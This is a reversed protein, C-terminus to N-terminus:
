EDPPTHLKNWLQKVTESANFDSVYKDLKKHFSVRAAPTMRLIQFLLWNHIEVFHYTLDRHALKGLYGSGEIAAASEPHADQERCLVMIESTKVGEKLDFAKIAEYSDRVREEGFAKVTVEYAHVINGDAQREVIDGLTKGRAGSISARGGHGVVEVGTRLEEHYARLSLEVIHEPTNGGDPAESILRSCLTHLFEPDAEPSVELTMDAVRESEALFRGHLAIAFDELEREPMSEIEEVFRVVLDAAWKPSRQAAWQNNIGIAAKAVNLPGSRRHPIRRERLENRIPGEYLARPKCDYFAESAKYGGDLTRAVVIVLLIERFGWVTISFLAELGSMWRENPTHDNRSAQEFFAEMLAAVRASRDATSM